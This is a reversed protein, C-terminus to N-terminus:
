IKVHSSNLRTSKRDITFERALLDDAPTISCVLSGKGLKALQVAEDIDKYPMITSVPGFAELEHTGLKQFPRFLTTYPFITSRSQNRIITITRSLLNHH